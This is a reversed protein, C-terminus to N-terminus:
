PAPEHGGLYAQCRAPSYGKALWGLMVGFVAIGMASSLIYRLRSVKESGHASRFSPAADIM